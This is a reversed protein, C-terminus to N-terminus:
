SEVPPHWWGGLSRQKVKERGLDLTSCNEQVGPQVCPPRTRANTSRELVTVWKRTESSHNVDSETILENAEAELSGKICTQCVHDIAHRNGDECAKHEERM